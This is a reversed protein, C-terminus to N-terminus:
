IKGAPFHAADYHWAFGGTLQRRVPDTQRAAFEPSVEYGEQWNKIWAHKYVLMILRRPQGNSEMMDATPGHDKLHTGPLLAFPGTDANVDSIFFACRVWFKQRPYPVNVMEGGAALEIDAGIVGRAVSFLSSSTM